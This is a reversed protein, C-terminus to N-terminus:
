RWASTQAVCVLLRLELWACVIKSSRPECCPFDAASLLRTQAGDTDLARGGFGLQALNAAPSVGLHGVGLVKLRPHVTTTM